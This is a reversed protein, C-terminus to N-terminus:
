LACGRAGATHRRHLPTCADPGQKGEKAGSHAHWAHGRFFVDCSCRSRLRGCGSQRARSRTCGGLWDVLGADRAGTDLARHGTLALECMDLYGSGVVQQPARVITVYAIGRMAPCYLVRTAGAAVAPGRACRMGDMYTTTRSVWVDDNQHAATHQSTVVLVGSFAQSLKVTLTPGSIGPAGLESSTSNAGCTSDAAYALGYGSASGSRYGALVPSPACLLHSTRQFHQVAAFPPTAQGEYCVRQLTAEGLWLLWQLGYVSRQAATLAAGVVLSSFWVGVM